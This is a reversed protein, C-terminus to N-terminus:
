LYLYFYSYLLLLLISLRLLTFLLLILYSFTLSLTHLLFLLIGELSLLSRVDVRFVEFKVTLIECLKM